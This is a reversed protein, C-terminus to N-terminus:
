FPCPYALRVEIFQKVVLALHPLHAVNVPLKVDDSIDIGVVLIFIIIRLLSHDFTFRPMQFYGLPSCRLCRPHAPHLYFRAILYRNFFNKGIDFPRQLNLYAFALQLDHINEYTGQYLTLSRINM